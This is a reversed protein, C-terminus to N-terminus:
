RASSPAQKVKAPVRESVRGRFVPLSWGQAGGATQRDEELGIAEPRHEGGEAHYEFDGHVQGLRAQDLADDILADQAQIHRDDQLGAGEGPGTSEAVIVKSGVGDTCLALGTKDDLRLVAAYHGSALVSRSPKGTNIGRLVEVLGGLAGHASSTDVGAEAYARDAVPGNFGISAVSLSDRRARPARPHVAV